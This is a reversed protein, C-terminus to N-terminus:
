TGFRPAVAATRETRERPHRVTGYLAGVIAGYMVHEVVFFAVGALGMGSMFAGPAPMEQPIMPHMAPLALMACGGIVIHVLSFLAGTGTGARHSLREFGLAYLLAIMGSIALHMILGAIWATAGPALFMTGLMMELNVPMGLARVVAGLVTMAAGGAVGALFAKGTNM